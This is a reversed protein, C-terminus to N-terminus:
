VQGGDTIIWGAGILNSRANASAQSYKKDNYFLVRPATRQRWQTARTTGVDLWLANLFKDYNETTVGSENFIQSINSNINFKACWKSLDQNFARAGNLMNTFDMVKSINWNSIDQNFSTALYFMNVMAEAKSMNITIPSNFVSNEQFCFSFNTVNNLTPNAIPQNFVSKEFTGSMDVVKSLNNEDISQNFSKTGWFANDLAECSSLDLKNIPQNFKEASKLFGSLTTVKSTKLHNIPQNFELCDWFLKSMNTANETDWGRLSRNFKFNGHFTSQFNNIKRVDLNGVPQNFLPSDAFIGMISTLNENPLGLTYDPYAGSGIDYGTITTVTDWTLWAYEKDDDITVSIIDVGGVCSKQTLGSDTFVGGYVTFNGGFITRFKYMAPTDSDYNRLIRLKSVVDSPPFVNISQDVVNTSKIVTCSM